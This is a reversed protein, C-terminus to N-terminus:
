AKFTFSYFILRYLTTKYRISSLIAVITSQLRTDRHESEPTHYLNKFLNFSTTTRASYTDAQHEYAFWAWFYIFSDELNNPTPPPYCWSCTYDVNLDANSYHRIIHETTNREVEEFNM